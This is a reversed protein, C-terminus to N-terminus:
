YEEPIDSQKSQEGIKDIRALLGGSELREALNFYCLSVGILPIMMFVYSLYQIITSIILLTTGTGSPGKTFMSVMGLIMTPLSPIVFAAYTIIWIIIMAGATAWWDLNALKFARGFSYKFSGNEFIMVAYFISLAPFVYFGPIICCIFALIMLITIPITSGIVRLFYYKFYAWVEEPSPPLNGKEIYVAIYSLTSVTVATYTGLYFLMVLAYSWSFINSYAQMPSTASNLNKVNGAGLIHTVASLISALIFFGCLYFFVKMLPKFNQKIFLFTDSIIEGFERQRRFELNKNM